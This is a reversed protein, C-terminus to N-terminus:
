KEIFENHGQQLLITGRIEKSKNIWHCVRLKIGDDMPVFYSNIGKPPKYNDLELYPATQYKSEEM